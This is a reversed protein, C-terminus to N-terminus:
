NIRRSVTRRPATPRALLLLALPIIVLLCITALVPDGQKRLILVFLGLGGAMLGALVLRHLTCM